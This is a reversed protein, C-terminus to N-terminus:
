WRTSSSGFRLSTSRPIRFSETTSAMPGRSLAMSAPPSVTAFAVCLPKLRYCCMTVQQVIADDSVAVPNM